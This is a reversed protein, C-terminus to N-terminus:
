EIAAVLIDKLDPRNNEALISDVGPLTDLAVISGVEWRRGQYEWGGGMLEGM